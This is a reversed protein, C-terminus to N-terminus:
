VNVTITKTSKRFVSPYYRTISLISKLADRESLCENAIDLAEEFTDAIVLESVIVDYSNYYEIKFACEKIIM